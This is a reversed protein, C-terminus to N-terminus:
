PYREAVTLNAPTGTPLLKEGVSWLGASPDHLRKFTAAAQEPPLQLTANILGSTYRCAAESEQPSAPKSPDIPRLYRRLSEPIGDLAVDRISQVVIRGPEGIGPKSPATAAQRLSAEMMSVRWVPQKSFIAALKARAEASLRGQPRMFEMCSDSMEAIVSRLVDRSLVMYEITNNTDYAASIEGVFDNAMREVLRAIEADSQHARAAADVAAAIQRYEQPYLARITPLPRTALVAGNFPVESAREVRRADVATVSRGAHGRTPRAPQATAAGCSAIGILLAALARRM